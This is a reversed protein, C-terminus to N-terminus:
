KQYLNMLEELTYYTTAKEKGVYKTIDFYKSSTSAYYKGDRYKHFNDDKWKTFNITFDETIEIMKDISQNLEKSDLYPSANWIYEDTIKEQLTM